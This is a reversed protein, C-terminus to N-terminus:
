LSHWDLLVEAVRLFHTPQAPRGVALEQGRTAIVVLHTPLCPQPPLDQKMKHHNNVRERKRGREGKRGRHKEEKM